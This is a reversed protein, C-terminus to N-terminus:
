SVFRFTLPYRYLEGEYSKVAALIAFVLGYVAVVPLLLLGIGVFILLASAIAAILMTLHFNLAEKAQDSVFASRPGFAVLIIIPAFITFAFYSLHALMAWIREENPPMPTPVPHTYGYSIPPPGPTPDHPPLPPPDGAPVDRPPVEDRPLDKPDPEGPTPEDSM